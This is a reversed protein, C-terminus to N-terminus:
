TAGVAGAYPVEIGDVLAKTLPLGWKEPYRATVPTPVPEYRQKIRTRASGGRVDPHAERAYKGVECFLNQYDILQLPRGWLNPFELGLRDLCDGAIEATAKIVDGDSLGGTDVFCKRIGDIAGPGPVVFDTESFSTLPSYNLDIVYQFALFPGISPYTRLLDYAEEMTGALSLQGPVDDAMMLTLLRLHNRHKRSEGLRPSPMIYAASYIRDGNELAKTLVDDYAPLDFNSWHIPGLLGSLREWTSIRNFLKFLVVRFFIDDASSESGPIVENILYQSVRDSARYANTFRHGSLVPDTTWPPAQGVLRRYFIRQRECALWWYSEFVPSGRLRKSRCWTSRQLQVADPEIQMPVM